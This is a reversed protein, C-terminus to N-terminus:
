KGIDQFTGQLSSGVYADIAGATPATGTVIYALRMYGLNGKPLYRLNFVYGLLLKALAIAGTTGLVVPSTFAADTATQVQIELSTLNNFAATAVKLMLPIGRGFAVEKEKTFDIINTSYTTGTATIAQASSLALTSDLIM